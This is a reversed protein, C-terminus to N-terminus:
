GVGLDGLLAYVQGPRASTTIDWDQPTRGLVCDRVCGGVAYAEYGHRGLEGILYAAKEPLKMRIRERDEYERRQM